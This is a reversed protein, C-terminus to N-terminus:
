RVMREQGAWFQQRLERKLVKGYASKPLASAVTVGKPKKYGAMRQACFGILEEATASAGERFVVVAHVAEGWLPDPVGIVAAEKVAPHGLLVEEVERPYINAGGSIIMDKSRDMIYVYGQADMCGLDGTHLWGGRLTEATAEPREWYGRMVSPGRLVIEGMQGRPVEQDQEDFIKVELGTRPVGASMLREEKRPDGGTLHDERRLYTGTMPSEGQGFIQVLVPGFRKLAEKLDEVYAPSGGYVIYRLSSLDYRGIEPSTLLMKIQTPVLWTNTVKRAEITQFFLAAEFSRSHLIVNLAGKAIGALLHFGAGHTLPAAHLAVDEPELRMLDALWGVTVFNLNGHTLMAGKPRGTTGSTYFLWALEADDMEMTEDEDTVYDRLLDEYALQGPLPDALSIFHEVTPLQGRISAVAGRFEMGFIVARARPDNLHYAVEDAVLRANLPVICLGGKFCAFMSEVLAPGNFQLLGVRDGKQLGLEKLARALSNVRRDLARYTLEHEGWALALREGYTQAAQTLLVGTNM